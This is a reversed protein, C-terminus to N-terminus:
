QFRAFDVAVLHNAAPIAIQPLVPIPTEIDTEDLRFEYVLFWVDHEKTIAIDKLATDPDRRGAGLLRDIEDRSFQVNQNIKLEEDTVVIALVRYYGVPLSFLGNLICSLFNSGCTIRDFDEYWREPGDIIAGDSYIQEVPTLLAFGGGPTRLSGFSHYGASRLADRLALEADALTEVPGFQDKLRAVSLVVDRSPRPAPMPFLTPPKASIEGEDSPSEAGESCAFLLLAFLVGLTRRLTELM